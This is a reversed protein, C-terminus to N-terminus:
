IQFNVQFARKLSQIVHADCIQHKQHDWILLDHCIFPKKVSKGSM